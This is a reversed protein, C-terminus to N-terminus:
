YVPLDNARLSCPSRLEKKDEAGPEGFNRSEKSYSLARMNRKSTSHNSSTSIVIIALSVTPMVSCCPFIWFCLHEGAKGGNINVGLKKFKRLTKSDNKEVKM